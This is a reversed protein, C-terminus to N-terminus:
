ATDHASTRAVSADGVLKDYLYDAFAEPRHTQLVVERAHAGMTALGDRGIATARELAGRIEVLDNVECLFGSEGDVVLEPVGFVSTSVVPRGFQMAELISRPLSEVDSACVLADCALYWKYTDPQLPEVRVKDELHRAEVYRVLADVYPSRTAGVVVLVVDDALLMTSKAFAQVLSLQAKRPEISGICLFVTAEPAIGLQRRVDERSRTNRYAEIDDVDAAYPVVVGAGAPLYEAYLQRTADAVFVVRRCQGLAQVASEAVFPHVGPEAHTERWFQEPVFSEHIAWIVPLGVLQAASVAGHTPFTNALCVTCGHEVAFSAVQLRHADYAEPETLDPAGTVLVPFGLEELEAVLVGDYLSTVACRVGREALARLLTQLYLQGGGLGLSHTVVLVRPGGDGSAAALRTLRDAFRQRVVRRRAPDVPPWSPDDVEVEVSDIAIREGSFTTAHGGLVAKGAPLSVMSEFRSIIIKPRSGVQLAGAEVFEYHGPLAVRALAPPGGNM